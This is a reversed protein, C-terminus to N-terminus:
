LMEVTDAGIGRLEAGFFLLQIRRALGFNGEIDRGFAIRGVLECGDLGGADIEIAFVAAGYGILVDSEGEFVAVASTLACSVIGLFVFEVQDAVDIDVQISFPRLALGHVNFRALERIVLGRGDDIEPWPGPHRAILEDDVAKVAGDLEGRIAAA